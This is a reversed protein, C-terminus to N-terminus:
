TLGLFRSPPNNWNDRDYIYMLIREARTIGVYFLRREAEIEGGSRARYDPLTGEKLGILAVASFERGKANHITMLRLAKTPSAFMGLDDIGLNQTDIKSAAMDQKMEDVSAWFLPVQSRDIWGNEFFLQGTAASMQELWEIAGLREAYDEALRMMKVMARRGGYTFVDTRRSGTLDRIAHFVSRELQRVNYAEQEVVAACLQEALSAFLRSRRYPRAGPGVVPVGFDRLKRALPFLPAWNRALIAAQGFPIGLAGIQPLFHETLAAFTDATRILNPEETCHRTRGSSAM